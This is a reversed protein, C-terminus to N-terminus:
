LYKTWDDNRCATPGSALKRRALKRLGLSGVSYRLAVARAIPIAKVHLRASSRSYSIPLLPRCSAPPVRVLLGAGLKVSFNNTLSSNPSKPELKPKSLQEALPHCGGAIQISTLPFPNRSFSNTLNHFCLLCNHAHRHPMRCPDSERFSIGSLHDPSPPEPTPIRTSEALTRLGPRAASSASKADKSPQITRSAERKM